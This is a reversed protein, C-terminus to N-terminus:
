SSVARKSKYSQHAPSWMMNNSTANLDGEQRWRVIRVQMTAPTEGQNQIWLETANTNAGMWPDIPWLLITAAAQVYGATMLVAALMFGAVRASSTAKM